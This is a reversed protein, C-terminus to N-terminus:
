GHLRRLAEDVTRRLVDYSFHQLGIEYNHETMEDRWAADDVLRRVQGLLADDVDHYFEIAKVGKPKIDSLYTPYQQVVIPKRFYMTEIFANGFGEYTSPYTVFHAQPYIDWLTYVQHGNKHGRLAGIYDGIFQYRIGAREAEERLWAGYNGPEDGEYGTVLLILREDDLKRVLEIAKEIAKRRIIRTPQLVILDDDSLGLEQRFTLAYADPLPPPSAFDFVNPLLLADIGRFAYLRRKMPTNIVLHQIPKLNPPFAETLIDEIGNNMFRDREWYFDHHHCLAKIRTRKITEAIAVGLSINMPITSANQSVIMDIGFEEIFNEIEFRISDAIAYIRKMTSPRPMPNRFVEDHIQKAVPDYFHMSPVLRGNKMGSDLEGALYHCEHGMEAFIHAMKASELSVGDVGALRTAVFGIKMSSGKWNFYLRQRTERGLYISALMANPWAFWNRSVVRYSSASYAESLTGDWQAARLVREQVRQERQHDGQARAIIIEQVDGLPWPAPTHVSGLLGGYEGGVNSKSFAFNVTALWVPDEASVMGWHPAFVLPADNADHYFRFQGAGNTAYAYLRQDQYGTIFYTDIAQRVGDAMAAYDRDLGLRALKTFMRWLLVHSSFHYPMTDGMPDDAPTEDTPILWTKGDKRQSLLMDIVPDVHAMLRHLTQRDGTELVYEALELLPFIQQDLQYAEDKIRGNAMYSRGWAPTNKVRQAIEFMWLLHQRVTEAMDNRWHLLVRAVYYADRNWSLPLLMHDTIICTAEKTVPVCCMRGYVIARRLLLDLPHDSYRWAQWRSRWLDLTHRLMPVIDAERLVDFDTRAAHEDLGIVFPMVVSNRQQKNVQNDQGDQSNKGNMSAPQPYKIDPLDLQIGGDDREYSNMWPLYATVGINDNQLWFTNTEAEYFPHTNVAPPPVPGGETLQTYASRQLWLKGDLSAFEGAESFRWYQVVGIPNDLPVFTTVEAVVGNALTLRIHPIADEILWAESKVVPSECRLGFGDQETLQRRYQRVVDPNHREGEPFPPASTLTVYGQEPHYINLAIIRGHQNISGTIGGGGFDLPKYHEAADLRRMRYPALISDIAFSEVM